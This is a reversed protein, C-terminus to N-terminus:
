LKAELVRSHLLRMIEIDNRNKLDGSKLRFHHNQELQEISLANVGAISDINLTMLEQCYMGLSECLRGLGYDGLWRPSWKLRNRLIIVAAERSILRNAGSAFRGSVNPISGAYIISEHSSDVLQLLRNLRLYSSSTTMFLFDHNSFNVFHNLIALEKWRHTCYVDPFNVQLQSDHNSILRSERVQPIFTLFPLAIFWDFFNLLLHPWRGSFRIREHAADFAKGLRGVPNGYAHFVSIRADRETSLWTQEQGIETIDTWPKYVGHVVVCMLSKGM